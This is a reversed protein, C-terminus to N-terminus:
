FEHYEFLNPLDYFILAVLYVGVGVSLRSSDIVKEGERNETASFAYFFAVTELIKPIVSAASKNNNERFGEGLVYFGCPLFTPLSEVGVALNLNGNYDIPVTEPDFGYKEEQKMQRIFEPSRVNIKLGAIVGRDAWPEFELNYARSAETVKFKVSVYINQDKVEHDPAKVQFSCTYDDKNFGSSSILEFDSPLKIEATIIESMQYTGAYLKANVNFIKGYGVFDPGSVTLEPARASPLM